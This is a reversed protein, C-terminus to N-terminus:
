SFAKRVYLTTDLSKLIFIMESLFCSPVNLIQQREQKVPQSVYRFYEFVGRGPVESKATTRCIKKARTQSNM